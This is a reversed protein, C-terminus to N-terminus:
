RAQLFRPNSDQKRTVQVPAGLELRAAQIGCPQLQLHKDATAHQARLLEANAALQIFETHSKILDCVALTLSHPWLTPLLMAQQPACATLYSHTALAHHQNPTAITQQLVPV